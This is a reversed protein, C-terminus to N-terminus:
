FSFIEDKSVTVYKEFYDSDVWGNNDSYQEASENDLFTYDVSNSLGYSYVEDCFFGKKEDAFKLMNLFCAMIAIFLFVTCINKSIKEVMNKRSEWRTKSLSADWVYLRLKLEATRIM